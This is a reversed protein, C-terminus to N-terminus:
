LKVTMFCWRRRDLVRQTLKLIIMFHAWFILLRVEWLFWRRTKSYGRRVYEHNKGFPWFLDSLLCCVGHLLLDLNIGIVSCLLCCNLITNWKLHRRWVSTCSRFFVILNQCDYAANWVILYLQGIDQCNPLWRTCGVRRRYTCYELDVPPCEVM